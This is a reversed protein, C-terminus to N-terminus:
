QKADQHQQDPFLPPPNVKRWKVISIDEKGFLEKKKSPPLEEFQKDNALWGPIEVQYKECYYRIAPRVREVFNRRAFTSNPLLTWWAVHHGFQELVSKLDKKNKVKVYDHPFALRARVKGKDDKRFDIHIHKSDEHEVRDKLARLPRM